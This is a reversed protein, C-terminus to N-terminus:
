MSQTSLIIYINLFLFLFISILNLRGSELIIIINEYFVPMPFLTSKTYM